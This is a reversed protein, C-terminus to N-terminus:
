DLPSEAANRALARLMRPTALWRLEGQGPRATSAISIACAGAKKLSLGEGLDGLGCLRRALQTLTPEHGVLVCAPELVGALWTLIGDVDGQGLAPASRVPVGLVTALLDATQRARLRPSSFIAVNAGEVLTALGRSAAQTKRVGRPTLARDADTRGPALDEAVGHRFLYVM